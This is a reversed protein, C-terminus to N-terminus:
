HNKLTEQREVISILGFIAYVHSNSHPVMSFNDTIRVNCKSLKSEHEIHDEVIRKSSHACVISEVTLVIKSM